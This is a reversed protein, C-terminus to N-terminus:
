AESRTGSRMRCSTFAEPWMQRVRTLMHPDDVRDVAEIQLCALAVKMASPDRMILRAEATSIVGGRKAPM